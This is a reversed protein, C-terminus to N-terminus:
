KISDNPAYPVYASMLPMVSTLLLCIAAAYLIPLLLLAFFFFRLLAERGM